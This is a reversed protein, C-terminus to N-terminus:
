EERIISLQRKITFRLIKLSLFIKLSLIEKLEKDRIAKLNQLSYVIDRMEVVEGGVGREMEVIRLFIQIVYKDDSQGIM